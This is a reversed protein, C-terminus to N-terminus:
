REEICRTQSSGRPLNTQADESEATQEVLRSILEDDGLLNHAARRTSIAVTEVGAGDDSKWGNEIEARCLQFRLYDRLNEAPLLM